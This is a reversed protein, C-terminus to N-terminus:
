AKEPAAPATAGAQAGLEVWRHLLLALPRYLAHAFKTVPLLVILDIALVVHVLTTVYAVASPRPLYVFLEAAFGTLVTALMLLLFFWDAFRTDAYYKTPQTLRRWLAVTLGYLAMLGALTGILRGPYLLSVHSGIPKFLFDWTTAALLGLFGWLIALHVAWPRLFWPEPEDTEDDCQRYRSQALSERIAYGLAAPLAALPLQVPRGTARAAQLVHRVVSAVGALMLLGVVVFVGIGTDHILEGPIYDFFAMRQGNMDGQHWLLWIVFFASLLVFVALTGVWSGSMVRSIGTPDYRAIAYRRAAAMYRGPDAQRPCTQSCQGCYYCLWLERSALLRDEMGVQGFRILRRPFNADDESLPCVATCNGCNFCADVNFAGYHRIRDLLRTDVIHVM